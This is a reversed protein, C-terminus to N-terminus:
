AAVDWIPPLPRSPIQADPVGRRLAGEVADDWVEHTPWWRMVRARWQELGTVRRQADRALELALQGAGVEKDVATKRDQARSALRATLYAGGCSLLIGIITVLTNM